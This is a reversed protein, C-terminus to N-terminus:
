EGSREMREIEAAIVAAAIVLREKASYKKRIREVRAEVWDPAEDPAEITNLIDGALWVLSGSSHQNDHTADFGKDIQRVREITIQHIVDM